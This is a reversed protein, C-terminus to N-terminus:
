ISDIVRKETIKNVNFTTCINKINQLKYIDKLTCSINLQKNAKNIMQMALISNGGLVFFNDLISIKNADLGLIVSWIEALDNEFQNRPMIKEIDAVFELLPLKKLEIKGNSSMPFQDLMIYDHPIMYAPLRDSLYKNIFFKLPLIAPNSIYNTKHTPLIYGIVMSYISSASTTIGLMCSGINQALLHTSYKQFLYGSGIYNELSSDADISIIINGRNVLQGTHSADFFIDEEFINSLPNYKIDFKEGKKNFYNLQLAQLNLNSCQAHFILSICHTNNHDLKTNVIELKFKIGIEEILAVIHGLELYVFREYDDKYSNKIDPWFSILDIKISDSKKKMNWQSCDCLTHSIPNYYYYGPQIYDIESPLNIFTRVSYTNGASPYLYKPAGFKHSIASLKSLIEKLDLISKLQKQSNVKSYLSSHNYVRVLEELNIDASSFERYSKRTQYELENLDLHLNYTDPYYIKKTDSKLSQLTSDIGIKYTKSCPTHLLYGVLYSDKNHNKQLQVIPDKIGPIQSLKSTIEGLEIRYGGIKVQNDKRGLFEVYGNKDLKALDGTKYIRGFKKHEIFSYNTKENDQWYGIAVGIGGIYIEGVVGIPCEILNDNLIHLTQNPMSFGYPVSKWYKKCEKIKHWVSWISAETAGGLSVIESNPLIAKIRDFLNLPVWDGSLLFLRISSLRDNEIHSGILLDALQPVTNWMTIENESIAKVWHDQDNIKYQDPFVITGGVSLIGYIDYVSLDFSLRSLAFITDRNSVKLVSNVANITNVAGKHDIAVGKPSGTSGSTYIVYAMDGPAVKPLINTKDILNLNKDHILSDVLDEIVWVLYKKPIMSGIHHYQSKSMLLLSSSSQELIETIRSVPWEVDMPLYAGGSRMIALTGLVQLYGKECLIAILKNKKSSYIHEALLESEKLLQEYTYKISLGLDIIAVKEELSNKQVNKICESFLNESLFGQKSSNLANILQIDFFPMDLAPLPDQEWKILSIKELIKCYADHMNEILYDDFLQEVYDWEAVFGDETEYAKNDLWVQSTQTISYNVGIYSKDLIQSTQKSINGVTSTLVVQGIIKDKEILQHQKLFRQADVGDFINNEIDTLLSNHILRFKDLAAINTENIYDFLTLTTFDGIIDNVHKHLPLRNFLTLNICLRNQGTWFSLVQGFAELLIATLSIGTENSKKVIKKWIDNPITKTVRKFVPAKIEYPQIKLPLAMEFNYYSLKQSLYKKADFYIQSNRIEDFRLLYDRFNIDLKPLITNIDQYLLSWENLFIEFSSDDMILADFSIHLIYLNNTISVQFDFLPFIAPDYLKQSLQNRLTLFDQNNINYNVKIFYTELNKYYRQTGNKFILSLALHRKIIKNLAQELMPINLYKFAYEIYIHTSVNSLEYANNRGFYYAQQVNSLLFPKYLDTNNEKLIQFQDYKFINTSSCEILSALQSITRYEYLSKISIDSKFERNILNVLKIAKISSGGITFFNDSIDIRDEEIGLITSWVTILTKEIYNRPGCYENTKVKSLKPLARKDVKGHPTLPISYVKVFNQPIM